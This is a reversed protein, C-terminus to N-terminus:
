WSGPGTMALIHKPRSTKSTNEVAAMFDSQVVLLKPSCDTLIHEIEPGTLRYNIPVLIAGLRQAAFFMAVYEPENMSLVAVRDGCEVGFDRKLKEAGILSMRYLEAYNINRGTDGDTIAINQPAYLNWRKLWDTEIKTLPNEPTM